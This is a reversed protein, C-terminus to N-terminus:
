NNSSNNDTDTVPQATERELARVLEKIDNIEFHIEKKRREVKLVRARSHAITEVFAQEKIDLCQLEKSLANIKAKVQEREQQTM